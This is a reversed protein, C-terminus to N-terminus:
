RGLRRAVRALLGRRAPVATPPTWSARLAEARRQAEEVPVEWDMATGPYKDVVKVHLASPRMEGVFRATEAIAADDEGPLGTLAFVRLAVGYRACAAAAALARGRYVEAGAADRVRGVAALVAPAASELGLKVAVCGAKAMAQVLEADLDDARSECEWALRVKRRLLAECLALVRERDRAFVPDRFVVRGPRFARALYTMEDAVEDVPRPRFRHGQAVIYPCYACAHDCGKSGLVTLMGYGPWRFLDWAPRPLDDLPQGRDDTPIGSQRLNSLSLPGQWRAPEAGLLTIFVGLTREPEGLLWAIGPVARLADEMWAVSAGVAVVPTNPLAERVARLFAADADRTAWSVQAVVWAPAQEVVWAVAQQVSDGELVCDRASVELGGDRLARAVMALTHPPYLFAGEQAYVNGMGGAGERNATTGPLSPPNVCVVRRSM